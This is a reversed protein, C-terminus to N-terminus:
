ETPELRLKKKKREGIPEVPVVTVKKEEEAPTEEEVPAIEVTDEKINPKHEGVLKGLVIIESDRQKFQCGIVDFEIDTDIKVAEFEDNDFHLDRPILVKLPSVEAHLGVKSRLKVSAKLRQGPHPLCIDTQFTVHYDVGGEIYNVRGLSYNMIAISDRRIFGESSCYGEYNMKLQTLISAQINKQIFKSHIHVKKTLERREFLPDMKNNKSRFLNFQNKRDKIEILM